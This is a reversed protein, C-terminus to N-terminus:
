PRWFPDRGTFAILQTQEDADAPVAVKAGYHGSSRLMEDMPRMGDLMGHVMDPDLTDDMGTARALDWTHIVIDGLMIMGIGSEVTHTGAPGLVIERSAITPDDLLAQLQEALSTWAGLPDDDASPLPQLPLGINTMMGPMWETMHRVIDRATWGACPSSGDWAAAPVARAVETFRAAMRHFRDAGLEDQALLTDLRDFTQQMGGEMGSAIHGDRYEQSAHQVLTQLTTVGDAHTLTMTNVSEADPFGEFVETTVIREPRAIERYTGHWGLETGDEMRSVYRWDGGVRLDLEVAVLPCWSPGWWRLLLRPTTLATWVLAPPAEFARTILITSDTPLTVVASQHRTSM